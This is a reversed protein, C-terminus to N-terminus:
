QGREKPSRKEKFQENLEEWLDITKDKLEQQLGEKEIHNIAFSIGKFSKTFADYTTEGTITKCWQLNGRIDDLGYGFLIYIYAERFPDDVTSKIVRCNSKIGIIKEQSKGRFTTSKKIYKDQAPPGVRIRLSSFFPIGKGGPTTEGNKGGRIQNTNAILWDNKRILSCTKRLGASFDKAIKM